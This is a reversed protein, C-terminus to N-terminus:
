KCKDSWSDVLIFFYKTHIGSFRRQITYIPLTPGLTFCPLYQKTTM